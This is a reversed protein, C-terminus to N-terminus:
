PEALLRQLDQIVDANKWIEGHYLRVFKGRKDFMMMEMKHNIQGDPAVGFAIEWDTIFDRFHDPAPSLMAGQKFNFGREDGFAKLREPNDWLPDYSILVCNIKDAIGANALKGQLVAMTSTVLPCMQPNACRTFIFSYVTPKGVYKNLKVKQGDQDTMEFDLGFSARDAPETWPSAKSPTPKTTATTIPKEAATTAAVAAAPQTTSEVECCSAIGEKMEATKVPTHAPAEAKAPEPAPATAIPKAVVPPKKSEARDCGSLFLAAALLAATQVFM